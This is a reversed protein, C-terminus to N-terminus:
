KARRSVEVSQLHAAVEAAHMYWSSSRVNPVSSGAPSAILAATRAFYIQLLAALAAVQM